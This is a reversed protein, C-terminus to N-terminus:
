GQRFHFSCKCYSIILDHCLQRGISCEVSSNAFALMDCFVQQLIFCFTYLDNIHVEPRDCVFFNM